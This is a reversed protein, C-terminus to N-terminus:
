PVQDQTVTREKISERLGTDSSLVKGDSGRSELKWEEREASRQRITRQKVIPKLTENTTKPREKERKAFNSLPVPANRILGHETKKLSDRMMGSIALVATAEEAGENLVVFRYEKQSAHKRGKTFLMAAMRRKNDTIGDLANYVSDTYVVPGHMVWQTKHTSKETEAGDTTDKM